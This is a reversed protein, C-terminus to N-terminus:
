FFFFFVFCFLFLCFAWASFMQLSFSITNESVFGLSDVYFHTSGALFTTM